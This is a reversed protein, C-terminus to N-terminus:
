SIWAVCQIVGDQQWPCKSYDPFYFDIISPDANYDDVSYWGNMEPITPFEIYIMTKGNREYGYQNFVLQSAVSGKYTDYKIDCPILIRGSGGNCPNTEGKFYTGTFSGLYTMTDKVDTTATTTTEETTTTATTTTTTTKKTTTTTTTTTTQTTALPEETTTIVTVSEEHHRWRISECGCIFITIVLSIAVMSIVYLVSRDNM